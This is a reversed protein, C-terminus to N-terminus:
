SCSASKHVFTRIIERTEVIWPWQTCNYVNSVACFHRRLTLPLQFEPWAGTGLRSDM